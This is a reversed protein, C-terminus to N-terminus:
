FDVKILDKKRAIWSKCQRVYDSESVLCEEPTARVIELFVKMDYDFPINARDSYPGPCGHWCWNDITTYGHQAIIDNLRQDITKM